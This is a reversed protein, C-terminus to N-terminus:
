KGRQSFTRTTAAEVTVFYIIIVIYRYCDMLFPLLTKVAHCNLSANKYM